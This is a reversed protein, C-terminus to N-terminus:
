NRKTAGRLLKLPLKKTYFNEFVISEFFFNSVKKTHLKNIKIEIEINM